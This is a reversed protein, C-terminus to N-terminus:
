LLLLFLCRWRVSILWDFEADCVACALLFFLVNLLLFVDNKMRELEREGLFIKGHNWMFSGKVWYCFVTFNWEAILFCRVSERWEKERLVFCDDKALLNKSGSWFDRVVCFITISVVVADFSWLNVYYFFFRWDFVEVFFYICGCLFLLM